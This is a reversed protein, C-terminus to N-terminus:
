VTQSPTMQDPQVESMVKVRVNVIRHQHISLILFRCRGYVISEKEKPFDGKIALLMGALTECDETVSSYDDEDLDTVRFFDNLLTKGEFIYTDDPLRRYNKEEVDYEDDIDGVIEELVDELTVIGQTGGFEDVVIALHVRRSRFDELLDDIMRSEPVFYPERMLKQWEFEEKTRGIYPLLDRSYLVGKINDMSNEYVPLRAFGSEIVVKMVEAFDDDVDLGTVDVRPTMVESATTDGFKLIGELMDKNDGDTVQAIELAQSLDDATVATNEKTVVKKVIGSSKVLVSSLPYFLKVGAELVPAAMKAWALNNSNAYLKPLIEGFLLILFTLLVTQLIFSWVASMGSFIPGLAFNCLVVITVNVLNNIILITALLREPVRLLRMVREGSSSEELEDCQVPTLSFFSIESGSVFGSIVLAIIALSLSVIQATSM